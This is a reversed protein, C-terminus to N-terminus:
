LVVRTDGVRRTFREKDLYELLPIAYKRSIGFLDKFDAVTMPRGEPFKRKLDGKIEAIRAPTLVMDSTVKVLEGKKLLFHYVNRVEAPNGGLAQVLDDLSPPQLGGAAFRELVRERLRKQAENLDVEVGRLVVTSGSAQIKDERVLLDLLFQYYANSANGLFRRKLEERPVGQALPKAKHFAQLFALMKECVRNV